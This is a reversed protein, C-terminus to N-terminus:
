VKKRWWQIELGDARVPAITWPSAKSLKKWHTSLSYQASVKKLKPLPPNGRAAVMSRGRSDWKTYRTCSLPHSGSPVETISWVFFVCRDEKAGVVDGCSCDLIALHTGQIGWATGNGGM